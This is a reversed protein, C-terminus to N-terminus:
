VKPPFSKLVKQVGQQIRAERESPSAKELVTASGTGRWVLKNLKSDVVDLVVTGEEYETVFTQQAGFAWDNHFNGSRLDAMSPASYPPDITTTAQKREIVADYNVKFDSPAGFAQKQFGKASLERDVASRIWSDVLVNDVRPDGSQPQAESVWSYTKLSSFDTGKVYDASTSVTACGSILFAAVWVSFLRILIM